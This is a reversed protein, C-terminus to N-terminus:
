LSAATSFFGFAFFTLFGFALFGALFAFFGALFAAFFAVLFGAALFGAALLLYFPSTRPWQSGPAPAFNGRGAKEGEEMLSCFQSTVKNCDEIESASQFDMIMGVFVSAKKLINFVDNDSISAAWIVGGASM